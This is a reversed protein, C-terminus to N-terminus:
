VRDLLLMAAAGVGLVGVVLGVGVVVATELPGVLLPLFLVPALAAVLVLGVEVHGPVTGADTM